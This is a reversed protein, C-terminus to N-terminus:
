SIAELECFRLKIVIQKDETLKVREILSVLFERSNYAYDLFEQVMERARDATSVPSENQAELEKPNEELSTRNM